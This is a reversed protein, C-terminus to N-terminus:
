EKGKIEGKRKIEGGAEKVKEALDIFKELGKVLGGILPLDELNKLQERAQDTQKKQKFEHKKVM